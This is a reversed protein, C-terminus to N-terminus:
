HAMALEASVHGDDVLVMIAGRDFLRKAIMKFLGLGLLVNCDSSAVQVVPSLTSRMNPSKM